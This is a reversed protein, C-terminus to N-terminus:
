SDNDDDDNEVNDYIEDFGEVDMVRAKFKKYDALETDNLQILNTNPIFACESHEINHGAISLKHKVSLFERPECFFTVKKEAADFVEIDEAGCEIADNLCEDEFNDVNIGDRAIVNFVGREIFLRKANLTEAFHRKFPTAMQIRIHPLNDTYVVAIFYVKKYLRGEFM